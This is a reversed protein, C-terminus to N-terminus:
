LYSSNGSCAFLCIVYQSLAMAVIILLLILAIGFVRVLALEEGTAEGRVGYAQQGVAVTSSKSKEVNPGRDWPGLWPPVGMRPLAAGHPSESRDKTM